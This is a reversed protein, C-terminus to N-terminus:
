PGKHLLLWAGPIELWIDASSLSDSYREQIQTSLTGLVSPATYLHRFYLGSNHLHKM